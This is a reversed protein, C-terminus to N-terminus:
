APGAEVSHGDCRLVAVRRSGRRGAGPQTSEGGVRRHLRAVVLEVVAQYPADITTLQVRVRYFLQSALIIEVHGPQGPVQGFVHMAYGLTM